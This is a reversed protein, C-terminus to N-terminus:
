LDSYEKGLKSITKNVNHYKAERDPKIAKSKTPTQTKGGGGKGGGGKKGGVNTNRTKHSINGGSTKNPNIVKVAMATQVKETEIPDTKAPGVQIKPYHITRHINEGFQPINFPPLTANQLSPIEIDGPVDIM